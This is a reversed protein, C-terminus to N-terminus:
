HEKNLLQGSAIRVADFDRHLIFGNLDTVEHILYKTGHTDSYKYVISTGGETSARSSMIKKSLLSFDEGKAEIQGIKDITNKNTFYNGNKNEIKSLFDSTYEFNENSKGFVTKTVPTYDALVCISNFQWTEINNPFYNVQRVVNWDHVLFPSLFQNRPVPLNNYSKKNNYKDFNTDHM